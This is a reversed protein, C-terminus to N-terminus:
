KYIYLPHPIIEGSSADVYYYAPPPISRGPVSEHVTVVWVYRYWMTGKRLPNSGWPDTVNYEARLSYDDVPENVDHLYEFGAENKAYFFRVYTLSASVELGRLSSSNWNDSSLAIAVAELKTIPPKVNSDFLNTYAHLYSELNTLKTSQEELETRLRLNENYLLATSTFLAIVTVAAITYLLVRRKPTGSTKITANERAKDTTNSEASVNM